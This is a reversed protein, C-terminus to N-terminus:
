KKTSKKAVSRMSLAKVRAKEINEIIKRSEEDMKEDNGRRRARKVPKSM